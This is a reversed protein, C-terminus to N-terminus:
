VNAIVASCIVPLESSTQSLDLPVFVAFPPQSAPFATSTSQLVILKVVDERATIFIALRALIAPTKTRVPIATTL